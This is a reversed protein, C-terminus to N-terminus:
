YHWHSLNKFTSVPRTSFVLNRLSKANEQASPQKSSSRHMTTMRLHSWGLCSFKPSPRISPLQHYQLVMMIESQDAHTGRTTKMILVAGLVPIGFDTPGLELDIEPDSIAKLFSGLHGLGALVQPADLGEIKKSWAAFSRAIRNINETKEDHSSMASQYTLSESDPAILSRPHPGSQDASYSM